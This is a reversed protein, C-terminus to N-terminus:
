LPRPQLSEDAVLSVSKLNHEGAGAGAGKELIIKNYLKFTLWPKLTQKRNFGSSLLARGRISGRRM